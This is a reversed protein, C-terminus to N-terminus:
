SRIGREIAVACSQVHPHSSITRSHVTSTRMRRSRPEASVTAAPRTSTSASRLAPRARHACTMSGARRRAASRDPPGRLSHGDSAFAFSTDPHDPIARLLTSANEVPARRPPGRLPCGDSWRSEPADFETRILMRHQGRRGPVSAGSLADGDDGDDDDNDRDDIDRNDDSSDPIHRHTDASTWAPANSTPDSISRALSCATTGRARPPPGRLTGGVSGLSVPTDFDNHILAQAPRHDPRLMASRGALAGADDDDSDDDVSDRSSGFPAQSHSSSGNRQDDFVLLWAGAILLLSSSGCVAVFFVFL